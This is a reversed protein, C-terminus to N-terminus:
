RQNLTMSVSTGQGNSSNIVVKGGLIRAREQVGTLGFGKNGNNRTSVKELDFGSGNDKVILQIKGEERKISVSARSARSHKVINNISEQVIRYFNIEHEKSFFGDLEDIDSDFYINSSHSVREMMTEIAKTLGLEDLQYPRLNYAIERVEEIAQSATISIESLQNKLKKEDGNVNLGLLAWNKIILLDQGLSDHLEVAIRQREQEQSELLQKSFAEQATHAQKLRQVRVRYAFAVVGAVSILCLSVFWWTRWFPPHVIIQLSAGTENWIGEVNAAIVKFTYNGPPLHNYYVYRRTGADVWDKDLGELRYKFRVQEPKNFSIGTYNIQLGDNDPSIEVSNRCDVTQRDLQCEELSVFPVQQNTYIAKPDIVVVGKQTPFWLRGDRKSKFGAPQTGGNCEADLMGDKVGYSVSTISSRKSDAFENLEQKNVRYIGRNCSMWLRDNDDELIQFVGQDYLGDKVRYATFRGDKLRTLGNDYTGIWLIGERDEYISRVHNGSLGDKETYATFQKNEYKALGGVTGIWLTRNRDFHLVKVDNAPLGDRVTFANPPYPLLPTRSISLSAFKKERVGKSELEVVTIRRLGDGSGFWLTGASDQAIVSTAVAPLEMVVSFKEDKYKGIFNYFGIWLAHDRDQFLSTFLNEEPLLASFKGDEYKHLGKNGWAGIWITGDRDEYLPYVNENLLGDAKSYSTIVQHSFRMLGGDATGAWVGGERDEAFSQFGNSPLGDKEKTLLQFEGNRYISLGGINKSGFWINGKSDEFIVNVMGGPLGDKVSLVDTYGNRFRLVYGEVVNGVALWYNESRDKYFFNFEHRSFIKPIYLTEAGKGDVRRIEDGFRKWIAGTNDTLVQNSVEASLTTLEMRVFKEGDFRVFGEPTGVRLLNESHFYQLSWISDSPLGNATTYNTFVGNQYRILGRGGAVIWLSGDNTEVLADLRNTVIGQTNATNFVTFKVGDFRALGDSTAAWIYGDRTQLVSSVTKYPLGQEVGWVEVHYQVPSSNSTIFSASTCLTIFLLRPIKFGTASLGKHILKWM